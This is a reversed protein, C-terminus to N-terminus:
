PRWRTAKISKGAGVLKTVECERVSPRKCANGLSTEVNVPKNLFGNSRFAICALLDCRETLLILPERPYGDRFQKGFEIGGFTLLTVDRVVVAGAENIRSSLPTEQRIQYPSVDCGPEKPGLSFSQGKTLTKQHPLSPAARQTKAM